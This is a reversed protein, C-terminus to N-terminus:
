VPEFVAVMMWWAKTRANLNQITKIGAENRARLRLLQGIITAVILLVLVGGVLYITETDFKFKM